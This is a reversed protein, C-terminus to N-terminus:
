CSLRKVQDLTLMSEGGAEWQVVVAPDGHRSVSISLRARMASGLDATSFSPPAGPLAALAPCPVVFERGEDFGQLVRFVLGRRPDFHLQPGAGDGCSGSKQLGTIALAFRAAAPRLSLALTTCCALRSWLTRTTDLLARQPTACVYKKGALASAPPLTTHAAGNRPM